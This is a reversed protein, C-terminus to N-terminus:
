KVPRPQENKKEGFLSKHLQDEFKKNSLLYGISAAPVLLSAAASIAKAHSPKMTTMKKLLWDTGKKAGFGIAAGTGSGLAVVGMVKAIHKPSRLEADTLEALKIIRVRQVENM